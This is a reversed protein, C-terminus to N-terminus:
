HVDENSTSCSEDAGMENSCEGVITM